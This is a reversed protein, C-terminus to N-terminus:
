VALKVKSNNVKSQPGKSKQVKQSQFMNGKPGKVQLSKSKHVRQIAANIKVHLDKSQTDKSM